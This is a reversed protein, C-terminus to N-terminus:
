WGLRFFLVAFIGDLVVTSVIGGVVAATAADGVARPGRGASLGARCGIGAIVLGFVAAKGLGGVLDGVSLWQTLQATVAAVPFGLSMMVLTMGALGALNFLMALVPMVLCGALLRPLVLLAGADVGMIRLADVEENVVMTGLEAAYASATRGSLIVAALLPGLERLLSIGVLNPVFVEAGFRRLPISSQFALIVGILVGLLITLPFALTGVEHLHRMLDAGRIRWPHLLGRLLIIASEGTFAVGQGMNRLVGIGWRGTAAVFPLGPALAPPPAAALAKATRELTAAVADRAGEIRAGPVAEAARLVLVAGAGDLETTRGLDLVLEQAGRTARMAPAWAAAAAAADFRGAFDLRTHEGERTTTLSGPSPSSDTMRGKGGM